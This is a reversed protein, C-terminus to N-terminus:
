RQPQPLIEDLAAEGAASTPEYRSTPRQSARDATSTDPEADRLERASQAFRETRAVTVIQVPTAPQTAVPVPHRLFLPPVIATLALLFLGVGVVTAGRRLTAGSSPSTRSRYASADADAILRDIRPFGDPRTLGIPRGLHTPLESRRAGRPLALDHGQHSDSSHRAELDRLQESLSRAAIGSDTTRDDFPVNTRGRRAPEHMLLM